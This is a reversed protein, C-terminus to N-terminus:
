QDCVKLCIAPWEDQKNEIIDFFDRWEDSFIIEEISDVNDIKLEEKYLTSIIGHRFNSGDNVRTYCCPLIYGSPHYSLSCGKELCKPKKM